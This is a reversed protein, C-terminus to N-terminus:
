IGRFCFTFELPQSVDLLYEPHVKAGWSDDGGIGMQAKAVRVVTYHVEPLEYAHAANEVEHPTYPLASFSLEDGFFLMGRGKRDVVKACRVGCKNGCEQPVLYEAMNDKVHNEYLGLKAGSKRDAYTEQSGLGYWKLIDYDADLKFMVGFEPMDGLEKVPDYSLTTQITGDGFVEYTLKCSSQPTTPMHYTYTIKVSHALEEVKPSCDEFRDRSKTTVYLSALKWQAYRQQMLSGNDNSVPARWFNPLPISKLMEQGAYQYSMLGNSQKGFIAKFNEGRVGLYNHGFV